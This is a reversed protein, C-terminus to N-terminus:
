KTISFTPVIPQLSNWGHWKKTVIDIVILNLSAIFLWRASKLNNSSYHFHVQGHDSLAQQQPTTPSHRERAAALRTSGLRTARASVFVLGDGGRIRVNQETRVASVASVASVACDTCVRRVARVVPPRSSSSWSSSSSFGGDSGICACEATLPRPCTTGCGVASCVDGCLM